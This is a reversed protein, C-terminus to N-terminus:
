SMSVSSCREQLQGTDSNLDDNVTPALSLQTPSIASKTVPNHGCQKEYLTHYLEKITKELTEVKGNLALAEDETEQMRKDASRKIDQLEELLCLMQEM